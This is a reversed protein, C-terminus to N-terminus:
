GRLDTPCDEGAVLEMAFFVSGTPTEGYDFIKVVNEHNLQSAAQAEKLFRKRLEGRRSYAENLVKIALNGGLTTQEARYVRGMGGEGIEDVVRYRDALVVGLLQDDAGVESEYMSAAADTTKQSNTSRKKRFREFM